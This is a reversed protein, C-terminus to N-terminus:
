RKNTVHEAHDPRGAERDSHTHTHPRPTDRAAGLRAPRRVRVFPNKRTLALDVEDEGEDENINVCTKYVGQDGM